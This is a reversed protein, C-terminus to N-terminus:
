DFRILFHTEALATLKSAISFIQTSPTVDSTRPIMAVEPGRKTLPSSRLVQHLVLHYRTLLYHLLIIDACLGRSSPSCTIGALMSRTHCSSFGNCRSSCIPFLWGNPWKETLKRQVFERGANFLVYNACSRRLAGTPDQSTNTPLSIL